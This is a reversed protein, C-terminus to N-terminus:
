LIHYDLIEELFLLHCSENSMAHAMQRKDSLSRSNFTNFLRDFNEIFKATKIGDANHNIRAIFSIGVVVSRSLVQAALRVSLPSFPPLSFAVNPFEKIWHEVDEATGFPESSRGM